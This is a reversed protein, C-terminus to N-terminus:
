VVWDFTAPRSRAPAITPPVAALKLHRLMRTVVAGHTIATM